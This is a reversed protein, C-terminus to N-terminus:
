FATGITFQLRQTRDDPRVRLPFAFSLKLPGVPSLWSLGFGVAYRLDSVQIATGPFASGADAFVLGRITRDQGTGPLPFLLESNLLLRSQGGVSVSRVANNANVLIETERPGISGPAYGRVSGIGGAFFNKFFPYESGGYAKGLGIDGQVALTYDRSVPFFWQTNYSARVYRLDGVPTAIEASATQLRGRTPTFGSDRTDRQWGVTTLLSNV